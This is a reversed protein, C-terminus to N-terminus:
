KIILYFPILPVLLYGVLGSLEVLLLLVFACLSFCILITKIVVGMAISFGVLDGRYENKIPHFFTKFLLPLSLLELCYRNIEMIFHCVSKFGDYYWFSIVLFPYLVFEM